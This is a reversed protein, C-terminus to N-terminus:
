TGKPVSKWCWDWINGSVSIGGRFIWLVSSKMLMYYSNRFLSLIKFFDSIWMDLLYEYKRYFNRSCRCVSSRSQTTWAPCATCTWWRPWRCGPLPFRTRPLRKWMFLVEQNPAKRYISILLYISLHLSLHIYVFIISLICFPHFSCSLFPMFDICDIYFYRYLDWLQCIHLYQLCMNARKLLLCRDSLLM